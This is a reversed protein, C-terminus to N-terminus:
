GRPLPAGLMVREFASLHEDAAALAREGARSPLAASLVRQNEVADDLDVIGYPYPDRLTSVRDLTERVIGALLANRSLEAVVVHFQVDTAYFARRDDRQGSLREVLAALTAFDDDSANRACLLAAYPETARRVELVQRLEHRADGQIHALVDQLNALSEVVTGGGPGRRASIVGAERLVAFAQRLVPRSVGLREALEREKPLLDGPAYAGGRLADVLVALVVDSASRLQVPRFVDLRDRDTAPVTAM